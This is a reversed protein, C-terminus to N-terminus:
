DYFNYLLLLVAEDQDGERAEGRTGDTATILIWASVCVPRTSRYYHCHHHHHHHLHPPPGPDRVTRVEVYEGWGEGESM